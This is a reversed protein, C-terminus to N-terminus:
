ADYDDDVEELRRKVGGTGATGLRSASGNQQSDDEMDVEDELDLDQDRAASGSPLHHTNNEALLDQDSTPSSSRSRSSTPSSPASSSHSHSSSSSHSDSSPSSPPPYGPPPKNPILNFNPATFLHRPHPLRIFATEPVPPLPHSNLSQAIPTLFDREGGERFGYNVKGQVALSVDDVDLKGGKGSHESFTLADLLVDTTYRHAFEMLQLLVQPTTDEIGKSALILAIIRADRPLHEFSFNDDSAGSAQQSVGSAPASASTPGASSSAIPQVPRSM